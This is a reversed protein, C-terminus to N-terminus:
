VQEVKIAVTKRGAKEQLFQVLEHASEFEITKGTNPNTYEISEETKNQYLIIKM